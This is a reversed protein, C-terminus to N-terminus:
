GLLIDEEVGLWFEAEADYSDELSDIASLYEEYESESM